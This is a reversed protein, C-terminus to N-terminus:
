RRGTTEIREIVWDSGAQRLHFRTEVPVSRPPSGVKPVFAHTVLCTAMATGASVSTGIVQLKLDYSVAGAFTREVAELQERSLTPVLRSLASVDRQDYASEYATLLARISDEPSPVAPVPAGSVPAAAARPRREEIQVPPPPAVIPPGAQEQVVAPAAVRPVDVVLDRPEPVSRPLAPPPDAARSPSATAPPATPRPAPQPPAPVSPPPSAARAAAATPETAPRPPESTDVRWLWLAGALALAGAAAAASLSRRRRAPAPPPVTTVSGGGLRLRVAELEGRLEDLDDYRDSPALATARRIMRTVDPPVGAATPVEIPKGRGTLMQTLSGQFLPKGTVVEYLVCGLAFVDSRRDVEEGTLQEPAMYRPTGFVNLTRTEDPALVRAIGFDLIKLTGNEHRVLNAPKVDLHVVGARHAYALGACADAILRLGDALTLAGRSILSALTPGPVYEMAIYPRGDHEGVDFVTVINPHHLRGAARAERAFRGRSAPDLSADLLKLAVDRGILPDRALYVSGMGGRGLLKVIAYRGVNQLKQV